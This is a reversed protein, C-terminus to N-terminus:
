LQRNLNFSCYIINGTRRSFLYKSSKADVLVALKRIHRLKLFSKYGSFLHMNKENLPKLMKRAILDM